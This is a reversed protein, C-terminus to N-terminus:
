PEAMVSWLGSAPTPHSLSRDRAPPPRHWDPGKQVAFLEILFSHADKTDREFLDAHAQPGSVAGIVDLLRYCVLDDLQRFGSVPSRL